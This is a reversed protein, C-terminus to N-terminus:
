RPVGGILAGGSVFHLVLLGLALVLGFCAVAVILGANSALWAGIEGLVRQTDPSTADFPNSPPSQPPRAPSPAGGGPPGGSPINFNQNMNFNPSCTGGGAFLGFVWLFRHRWTLYFAERVLRAYDM